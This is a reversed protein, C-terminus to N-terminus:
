GGFPQDIGSDLTCTFQEFRGIEVDIFNCLAAAEAGAGCQSMVETALQREAREGIAGSECLRQMRVRVLSIPVNGMKQM